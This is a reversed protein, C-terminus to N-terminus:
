VSVVLQVMLPSPWDDRGAAFTNRAILHHRIIAAM